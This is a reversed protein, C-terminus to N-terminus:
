GFLKKQKNTLYWDKVTIDNSKGFMFKYHSFFKVAVLSEPNLKNQKTDM